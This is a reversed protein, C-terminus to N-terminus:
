DEKFLELYFNQKFKYFDKRNQCIFRILKNDTNRDKLIREQKTSEKYTHNTIKMLYNKRNRLNSKTKITTYSDYGYPWSDKKINNKTLAIFHYHERNNKKGYDINAVYHVVNASLFWSVYRRRTTKSLENLAADNFTLTGFIIKYDTNYDVFFFWYLLEKFIKSKRNSISHYM